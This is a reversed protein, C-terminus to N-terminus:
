PKCVTKTTTAGNNLTVSTVVTKTDTLAPTTSLNGSLYANTVVEISATTLSLTCTDPDFTVNTLYNIATKDEDVQLTGLSVASVGETAFTIASSAKTLTPQGSLYTIAETVSCGAGAPGQPGAPGAPGAPGTDGTDGKDGKPGQIGIGPDGKDGKPGAPGVDGQVGQEGQEGKRGRDGQEGRPGREGPEGPDGDRGAIGDIGPLPDRGDRGDYGDRGAAGDRGRPPLFRIQDTILGPIYTGGGITNAYNNTINYNNTTPFSFSDGYYHNFTTGGLGIGPIDYFAGERYPLLDAYEQANWTQAPYGDAGNGGFVGAGGAEQPLGPQLSLPGRHTVPQGCNGLAQTLQKLAAPPLAKQLAAVIAPTAQTLM